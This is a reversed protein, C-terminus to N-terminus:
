VEPYTYLSREGGMMREKKPLMLCESCVTEIVSRECSGSEDMGAIAGKAQILFSKSSFFLRSVAVAVGMGDEDDETGGGGGGGGGEAGRLFAGIENATEDPGLVRPRTDAKEFGEARGTRAGGVVFATGAGGVEEAAVTTGPIFARHAWCRAAAFSAVVEGGCGVGVDVEVEDGGEAGEAVGKRRAEAQVLLATAFSSSGM